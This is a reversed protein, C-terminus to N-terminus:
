IRRPRTENVAQHLAEGLAEAQGRSFAGESELRRVFALKDFVVSM